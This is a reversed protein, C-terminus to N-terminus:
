IQFKTIVHISYPHAQCNKKCKIKKKTQKGIEFDVLVICFLAIGFYLSVFVALCMIKSALTKIKQGSGVNLKWFIYAEVSTLVIVYDSLVVVFFAMACVVM